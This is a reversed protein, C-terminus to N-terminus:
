EEDDSESKLMDQMSKNLQDFTFESVEYQWEEGSQVWFVGNINESRITKKEGSKTTVITETPNSFLEPRYPEVNNFRLNIFIRALSDAVSDYRLEADEPVNRITMKKTTEDRVAELLADKTRIVVREVESTDLSIFVPDLYDIPDASVDLTQGVLYVQDEGPKRVFTGRSQSLQGVILKYTKDATVSVTIGMSQGEDALGLGEHNEAKATKWEVVRLDAINRLLEFLTKFDAPYSSKEKVTWIRSQNVITVGSESSGGSIEIESVSELAAKLEPFLLASENQKEGDDFDILLITLVVVLTILSIAKRKM